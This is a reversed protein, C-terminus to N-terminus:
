NDLSNKRMKDYIIDLVEDRTKVKSECPSIIEDGRFNIVGYYLMGNCSDSVVAIDKWFPDISNYEKINREMGNKSLIFTSDNRRALAYGNSFDDASDYLFPIKLNGLTDFYGYRNDKRICIMGDEVIPLGKYICPIIVQGKGNILCNCMAKDKEVLVNVLKYDEDIAFVTKIGDMQTLDDGRKNILKWEADNREQVWAVGNHYEYACLFTDSLVKNGMSDVYVYSNTAVRKIEYSQSNLSLACHMLMLFFIKKM